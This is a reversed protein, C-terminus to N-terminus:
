FLNLNLVVSLLIFLVALVTTFIVLKGERSRSKNKTWYSENGGGIAGLGQSKGEQMLVLILLLLCDIIYIVTLTLRLASM